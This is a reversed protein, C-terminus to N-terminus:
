EKIFKGTRIGKEDITVITYFGSDLNGVNIQSNILLGNLLKRGQLDYIAYSTNFHANRFYLVTQVPNPYFNITESVYVSAKTPISITTQKSMGNLLLDITLVSDTIAHLPIKMIIENEDPPYPTALGISYITETINIASIMGSAPIDPYELIHASNDINVNLGFLEGSARFVLNNEEVAVYIDTNLQTDMEAQEAPFENILNVAFQLILSADYATVTGQRDVNASIKRWEEWPLPDMEPLPDLGVSYQLILAADYAQIASNSDADGYAPYVTILGNDILGITDSNVLCNSLDISTTGTELAKFKLKLLIGSDRLATQRAWALSLKGDVPNVEINGGSSLMGTTDYEMFQIIDENYNLDFQFSIVDDTIHDAYVPIDFLTNKLAVTDTIGIKSLNDQVCRISYGDKNSPFFFLEHGLSFEYDVILFRSEGTSLWFYAIVDKLKFVGFPEMSYFLGQRVGAPVAGFGTENTAPCRWSGVQLLSAYNHYHGGPQEEYITEGLYFLSDWEVQTPIHWGSPCINKENIAVDYNYLAGYMDKYTGSDNDYWSYAPVIANAWESNGTINSIPTGDNFRTARLNETIWNFGNIKYTRYANGDIDTVSGYALEPLTTFLMEEGYGVGQQNVAFARLYYKTDPILGTLDVNFSYNDGRFVIKFDNTDPEPFTSWCIGKLNVPSTGASNLIGGSTATSQSIFTVERTLITPLPSPYNGEYYLDFLESDSLTRDYIRIDDLTGKFEKDDYAQSNGFIMPVNSNKIPGSLFKTDMLTNNIYFRVRDGDYNLVLFDFRTCEPDLLYREESDIFTVIQNGITWTYTYKNGEAGMLLEVQSIYEYKSIFYQEGSDPQCKVWLAITAQNQSLNFDNITINSNQGNFYCAANENGFRDFTLAASDVVPNHENGSEDNSNGSFPYFALLGTNLDITDPNNKICRVSNGANDSGGLRGIDESGYSLTRIWKYNSVYPTSTWWYGFTGVNSFNQYLHGGPLATFGTENTAGMNPAKWHLTDKEKLKGGAVEKSGLFADLTKWEDESPVHWGGPCLMGTNVAYGNYYGGYMHHASDDVNYYYTPTNIAPWYSLDEVLPIPTANNFRTTKLNEAMWIQDGIIVTNYKNGDVDTISDSSIQAVSPICLILLVLLLRIKKM